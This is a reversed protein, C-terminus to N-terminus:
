GDAEDDLGIHERLIRRENLTGAAGARYANWASGYKLISMMLFQEESKTM